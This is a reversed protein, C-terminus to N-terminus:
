ATTATGKRILRSIDFGKRTCGARGGGACACACACAACACSSGRGAFGGGGGGSRSSSGGGSGGGAFGGLFAGGLGSGYGGDSGFARFIRSGVILLVAILVFLCLIWSSFDPAGTSSSGPPSPPAGAATLNPFASKAYTITVTFKDNPALNTDSWVAQSQGITPAPDTKHVLSRDGPLDWTITLANIKAFDFWGPTFQFSVEDSGQAYAIERLNITFNLDWCEGALPQKNFNLQVQSNVGQLANASTVWVKTQSNPVSKPGWDVLDFNRNPVGVQLYPKDGPFDTAACYNSFRYEMALTGDDRPTVHVSYQGIVDPQQALARPPLLAAFALLLILAFLWKIPRKTKM